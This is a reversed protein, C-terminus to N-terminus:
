PIRGRDIYIMDVAVNHPLIDGNAIRVRMGHAGRIPRTIALKYYNNVADYMLEDVLSNPATNIAVPCIADIGVGDRTPSGVIGGIVGAANYWMINLTTIVYDTGMELYTIEIDHGILDIMNEGTLALLAGFRSVHVTEVPRERYWWTFDPIDLEPPLAM